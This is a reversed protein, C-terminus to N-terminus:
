RNLAEDLDAPIGRTGRVAFIGYNSKLVAFTFKDPEYRKQLKVKTLAKININENKGHYPIDTQIVLCKYLIASVPAAVYIYVTDGTKIGHGQKWAIEDTDDFAHEIDYYKPNAPVLWSKPPRHKNKTARSATVLYSEDILSTIEDFAVTGDLLVTVWNGRSIHYGKFYGKQQILVDRKFMDNTKINLIDVPEDGLLGLKSKPVNMVLGFWKQNDDHRFVAYEPYARWPYEIKSKYKEKIYKFIKEKM